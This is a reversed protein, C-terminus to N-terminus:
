LRQIAALQLRYIIGGYLGAAIIFVFELMTSTLLPPYGRITEIIVSCILTTFFIWGLTKGASENKRGRMEAIMYGLLTFAAIFEIFRFTFVVRKNFVFEQFDTNFLWASIPLTTPWIVLLLLYLVFLPLIRKLTPLELRRDDKKDAKSIGAILRAAIGLGITFVAIPIPFKLLVPLTAVLFWSMVFFSLKAFSLAATNRFRYISISCLVGTGFLGLLLLLWLRAAEKGISLGNLWMLPILLYVLNMLPLELSFLKGAREGGLQAKLLIFLIAGLWAGLGNTFVDSLQTYRGPIFLQTFEISMSLLLGFFLPNLCLVDKGPRRSLKFLFGIPIFLVINAMFDALNTLIKIQIKAPIRFDFPFLTILFVMFVMYVLLATGLTSKQSDNLQM